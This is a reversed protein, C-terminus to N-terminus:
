MAAYGTHAPDEVDNHGQTFMEEERKKQKKKMYFLVGACGVAACCGIVIGAVAGGSLPESPHETSSGGYANDQKITTTPHGYHTPPTTTPYAVPSQPPYTTDAPPTVVPPHSVPPYTSSFPTEVPPVPPYHFKTTTPETPYTTSPPYTSSSGPPTNYPTGTDGYGGDQSSPPSPDYHVDRAPVLKYATCVSGRAVCSPQPMLAYGDCAGYHGGSASPVLGYGFCQSKLTTPGSPSAKMFMRPRSASKSQGLAARRARGLANKQKHTSISELSDSLLLLTVILLSWKM